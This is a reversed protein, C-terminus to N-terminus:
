WPLGNLDIVSPEIKDKTQPGILMTNSDYLQKGDPQDYYLKADVKYWNLRSYYPLLNDACLLLGYDCKLENYLICETERLLQTSYGNGRFQEPTIVNNIGGIQYALGDFNVSRLVVHYFTVITDGEYKIFVFDPKAWVRTKVFPSNGFEAEVHKELESKITCALKNYEFYKIM